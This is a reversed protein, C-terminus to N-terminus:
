LMDKGPWEFVWDPHSATQGGQEEETKRTKQTDVQTLLPPLRCALESSIGRHWQVAQQEWLIMCDYPMMCCDKWSNHTWFYLSINCIHAYQLPHSYIIDCYITYWIMNKRLAPAESHAQMHVCTIGHWAWYEIHDWIALVFCYLCMCAVNFFHQNFEALWQISTGVQAKGLYLVLIYIWIIFRIWVIMTWTCQKNRQLRSWIQIRWQAASLLNMCISLHTQQDHLIYSQPLEHTPCMKPHGYPPNHAKSGFSHFFLVPQPFHILGHNTPILDKFTQIHQIERLLCFHCVPCISKTFSKLQEVSGESAMRKQFYEASGPVEAHTKKDRQLTTPRGHTLRGWPKKASKGWKRSSRVQMYDTSNHSSM